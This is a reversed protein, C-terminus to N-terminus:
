IIHYLDGYKTKLYHIYPEICLPGGTVRQILEDATYKRGYQYINTKLWNLLLDFKGQEIESLIQPAENLAAEYFQASMINGLTYGQFEGGIPGSYWHADQLVGDKDDPPLIGIDRQFRESWADPLDRVELSGELLAQELDFRMMVHLNYTVEDAETRILSPEVKNIARYFEILPIYKIQPFTEQLRPYFYNWFGLSRGIVNEWLRSQSEHVGSSAGEVWRLAM